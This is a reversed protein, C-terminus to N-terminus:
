RQVMGAVVRAIADPSAYGGGELKTVTGEGVGLRKALRKTGIDARLRDFRAQEDASLRAIPRMGQRSVGQQSDGRSM